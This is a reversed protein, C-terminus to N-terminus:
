RDTYLTTAVAGASTMGVTVGSVIWTSRTTKKLTESVMAVTSPHLRISRQVSPTHLAVHWLLNLLNAM